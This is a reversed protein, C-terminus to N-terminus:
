VVSINSTYIKVIITTIGEHPFQCSCVFRGVTSLRFARNDFGLGLGLRKRDLYVHGTATYHQVIHKIGCLADGRM